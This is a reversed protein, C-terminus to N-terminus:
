GLHRGVKNETRPIWIYSIHLTKKEVLEQVSEFLKRLRDERIAYQLNLQNVALMSDSYIIANSGKALQRLALIIAHYEAENNTVDFLKETKLKPQKGEEYILCAIKGTSSGDVYVEIM